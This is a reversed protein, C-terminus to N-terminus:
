TLLGPNRRDLLMVGFPRAEEDLVAELAVAADFQPDL